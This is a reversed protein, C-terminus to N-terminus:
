IKKDTFYWVIFKLDYYGVGELEEVKFTSSTTTIENTDSSLYFCEIEYDPLDSIFRVKEDKVIQLYDADPLAVLRQTLSHYLIRNGNFLDLNKVTVNKSEAMIQTQLYFSRFGM